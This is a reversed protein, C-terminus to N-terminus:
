EVLSYDIEYQVHRFCWDRMYSRREQSTLLTTCKKNDESYVGVEVSSPYCVYVSNSEYGWKNPNSLAYCSKDCSYFLANDGLTKLKVYSM